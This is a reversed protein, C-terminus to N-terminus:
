GTRAKYICVVFTILKIYCTFVRLITDLACSLALWCSSSDCKSLNFTEGEEMHEIQLHPNLEVDTVSIRVSFALWHEGSCYSFGFM